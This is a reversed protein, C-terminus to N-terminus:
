MLLLSLGRSNHFCEMIDEEVGFVILSWFFVGLFVILSWGLLPSEPEDDPGVM